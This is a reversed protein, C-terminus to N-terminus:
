DSFFLPFVCLWWVVLGFPGFFLFVFLWVCVNRACLQDSEDGKEVVFQVADGLRLEQAQVAQLCPARCVCVCHNKRM